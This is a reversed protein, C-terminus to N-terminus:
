FELKLTQQNKIEDMVVFGRIFSKSSFVYGGEGQLQGLVMMKEGKSNIEYVVSSTSKLPTKVWINLLYHESTNSLVVKIEDNEVEKVVNGKIGNMEINESSPFFVLSKASLFLLTALVPALTM